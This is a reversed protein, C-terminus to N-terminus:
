LTLNHQVLQVQSKTREVWRLLEEIDEKNGPYKLRHLTRKFSGKVGGAKTAFVAVSTGIKDKLANIVEIYCIANDPTQNPELHIELDRYLQLTTKSTEEIFLIENQLREIHKEAHKVDGLFEKVTKCGQAIQGIFGIVGAISATAGIAEM